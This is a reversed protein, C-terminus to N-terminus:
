LYVIFYSRKNIAAHSSEEWLHRYPTQNCPYDSSALTNTTMVTKIDWCKVRAVNVHCGFKLAMPDILMIKIGQYNRLGVIYFAIEALRTKMLM